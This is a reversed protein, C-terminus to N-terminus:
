GTVLVGIIVALAALCLVLAVLDTLLQWTSRRLV